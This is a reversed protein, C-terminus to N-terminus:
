RPGKCYEPIAGASPCSAYPDWNDEWPDVKSSQMSQTLARLADAARKWDANYREIYGTVDFDIIEGTLGNVTRNGVMWALVPATGSPNWVRLSARDIPGTMGNKRAFRAAAPLDIFLPPLSATGWRVAQNVPSTRLGDATVIAFLGYGSSPSLFSIRVEPGRMRPNPGDRNQVELAVPIADKSWGRAQRTVARLLQPLDKPLQRAGDPQTKLTVAEADARVSTDQKAPAKAEAGIRRATVFQQSPDTSSLGNGNASLVLQNVYGGVRWRLTVRGRAADTCEWTGDNGQAYVMTGDPHFTVVGQTFWMWKGLIAECSAAHADYQLSFSAIGAVLFFVLTRTRTKAM